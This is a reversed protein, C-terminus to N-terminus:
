SHVTGGIRGKSDKPITRKVTVDPRPPSPLNQAPRPTVVEAETTSSSGSQTDDTFSVNQHRIRGSRASRPRDPQGRQVHSSNALGVKIENQLNLKWMLFIFFLTGLAQIGGLVYFFYDLHCTGESVWKHGDSCGRRCNINGHDSSPWFWVNYFCAFLALSVFSGLGSFFYFLGM